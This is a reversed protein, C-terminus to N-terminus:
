KADKVCRFGVAGSRDLSPAMLLYKGHESLLYAQPFYWRSGQPQYHSGGRLIGARTHDDVFEDTWQWVNGVMDMVGFPSAGAPHADVDSAPLMDRGKDPMPAPQATPDKGWPCTHGDPSGASALWDCNGWPYRRGDIGQAAYQWEWEHPLRKGAWKAYAEADERSVWTVPKNGWGTPYDGNKWDRLFNHSDAPAHRTADMFKKFDANTVEYKDMWYSKMHMPISHYRRASVEGPYQVDVGEDDDGEIEIGNVRFTFDGEPIRVMGPPASAARETEAIPVISQLLTKWQASYSALPQAALSKMEALLDRDEGSPAAVKLVAGFGDAEMSFSLLSEKGDVTPVVEVGHWVDFYKAGPEVPLRLQVGTAPYHNRNVMTWLTRDGQPWKSAFIGFQETRVHPEWAASVLLDKYQREIAAIRRLAEADRPTLQNWIGWINEWSEFGVGNFFAYQLDDTHNHAWRNCVNVMHRSELWKYRSIAPVFGYNWYGWSMLNYNIQEDSAPGLEPELVLPHHIADSATLFSRPVGDLTDGNIGDAGVSALEKSLATWEPEGQARTGQDWMMVPFLVRVGSRHFDEVMKRVGETGGPLDNFMDFQNRDDIGINSYTHWVLVSDIGGYRTNVDKLYKDVTYSRTAPDYFYRDHVMMQPQIFSSQAWRFEPRDYQSPDFGIRARRESRWHSVDALWAAYEEPSCTGAKASNWQSPASCQPGPIQEGKPLNVVDQAGSVSGLIAALSVLATQLVPRM